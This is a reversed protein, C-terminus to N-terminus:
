PGGGSGAGTLPSDRRGLPAARVAPRAALGALRLRGPSAGASGGARACRRGRPERRPGRTGGAVLAPELGAGPRGRGRLLARGEGARREVAGAGALPPLAALVLPSPG